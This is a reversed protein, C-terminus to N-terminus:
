IVHLVNSAMAKHADVTMSSLFPCHPFLIIFYRVVPAPWDWFPGRQICAKLLNSRHYIYGVLWLDACLILISSLLGLIQVSLCLLCTCWCLVYKCYIRPSKVISYPCSLGQWNCSSLQPCFCQWWLACRDEEWMVGFFGEPLSSFRLFDWQIIWLCGQYSDKAVEKYSGGHAALLASTLLTQQRKVDQAISTLHVQAM